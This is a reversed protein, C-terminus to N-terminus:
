DPLYCSKGHPRWQHKYEGIGLIFALLAKVVSVLRLEDRFHHLILFVLSFGNADKEDVESDIM